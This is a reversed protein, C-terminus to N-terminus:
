RERRARTFPCRMTAWGMGEFCCDHVSRTSPAPSSRLSARIELGHSSARRRRAPPWGAFANATLRGPKALCRRCGEPHRDKRRSVSPCHGESAYVSRRRCHTSRRRVLDATGHSARHSPGCALAFVAIDICATKGHATPLDILDPWGSCLVQDLLMTQWPFPKRGEHLESFFRPFISANM